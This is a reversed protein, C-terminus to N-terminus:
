IRGKLLITFNDLDISLIKEIKVLKNTWGYDADTLDIIDGIQTRYGYLWTRLETYKKTGSHISEFWDSGGTASAIDDHWIIPDAEAMAQIGHITQSAADQRIVPNGLTQSTWIGTNPDFGHAVNQWNIIEEIDTYPRNGDVKSGDVETLLQAQTWTDDGTIATNARFGFALKGENSLFTWSQSLYLIAQIISRYTHGKPIQAKFSLNQASVFGAWAGWSAWDIDKNAQTITDDLDAFESNTLLRWVMDSPTQAAVTHWDITERPAGIQEDLKKTTRDSLYIFASMNRDSFEVHDVFGTFLPMREALGDFKLNITAMKGHTTDDNLFIIWAQDANSVEVVAENAGFDPDFSLDSIGLVAKEEHIFIDKGTDHAEAENVGYGRTVQIQNAGVADDVVLMLEDEVQIVDDDDFVSSDVVDIVVESADLAENTDTTSDTQYRFVIRPSEVRTPLKTIFGASLNGGAANRTIM